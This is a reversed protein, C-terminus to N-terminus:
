FSQFLGRIVETHDINWDLNLDTEQLISSFLKFIAEM